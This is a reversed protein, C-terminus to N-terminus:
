RSPEWQSEIKPWHEPILDKPDNESEFWKSPAYIKTNENAIQAAWWSFTSNSIMIESAMSLLLLSEIPDSNSPPTVIEVKDKLYGFEELVLQPSDTFIWVRSDDDIKDIYSKYYSHALVGIRRNKSQLYDGKRIHIARPGENKAQQMREQFWKTQNTILGVNLIPKERLSSFYRWTQFYGKIKSVNLPIQNADVYGLEKSSFEKSMHNNTVALLLRSYIRQVKLRELIQDTGTSRKTTTKYGDLFGLTKLNHGPHIQAIRSFDSINYTVEKNLAKGFYLGAYFMFLQNGLGGAIEVELISSSKNM